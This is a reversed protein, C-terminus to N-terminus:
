PLIFLGDITEEEFGVLHPHRIGEMVHIDFLEEIGKTFQIIGETAGTTINLIHIACPLEKHMEEVPLGGFEKKERIKCLGIFALNKYFSLGRLYGPLKAVETRIGSKQDITLLTGTGSDLVWLKNQYLTPSHPMSLGSSIIEGSAYDIVCGGDRRRARWGDKVNTAGLATLFQPGQENSALGNLHCRDEAVIESIFHPKWVPKFSCEPSVTCLCSFRSNVILLEDNHWAIQHAAIDGTVHSRRPTYCVDYPIVQGTEDRIEHVSEFFWIQNRSAVALHGDSLALGTPRPLTRMLMMLKPGNPSLAMIRQAQYTSVLLSLGLSEFLAPVNSSHIYEVVPAKEPTTPKDNTM